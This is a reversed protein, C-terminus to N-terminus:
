TNQGGGCALGMSPGQAEQHLGMRALVDGRHALAHRLLAFAHRQILAIGFRQNGLSLLHPAHGRDGQYRGQFRSFRNEAKLNAAIFQPSLGGVSMYFGENSRSLAMISCSATRPPWGATRRGSWGKLLM